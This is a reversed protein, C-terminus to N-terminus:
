SGTLLWAMYEHVAGSVFFVVHLGLQRRLISPAQRTPGTQSPMAAATVAATVTATAATATVPLTDKRIGSDPAVHQKQEENGPPSSPTAPKEAASSQLRNPNVLSGEVCTDYLVTRLVSTTPINWRRAWFEGLSASMWPQDFTPLVPLGLLEVVIAAPGDMIIGSMSYITFALLYHNLVVPMVERYETYSLVVVVLLATKALWRGVLAPGEGASDQLRGEPGSKNRSPPKPFLPLALAATIQAVSM